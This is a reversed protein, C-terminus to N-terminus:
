PIRIWGGGFWTLCAKGRTAHRNKQRMLALGLVRVVRLNVLLLNRSCRLGRAGADTPGAETEVRPEYGM